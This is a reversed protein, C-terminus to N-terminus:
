HLNYFILLYKYLCVYTEIKKLMESAELSRKSGRYLKESQKKFDCNENCDDGDNESDLDSFLSDYLELCITGKKMMPPEIKNMASEDNKKTSEDGESDSLDLDFDPIELEEDSSM